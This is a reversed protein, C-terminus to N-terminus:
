ALKGVVVYGGGVRAVLVTDGASVTVGDLKPWATPEVTRSGNIRVFVRTGNNSAVIALTLQAEQDRRVQAMLDATLNDSM